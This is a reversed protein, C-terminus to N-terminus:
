ISSTKSISSGASTVRITVPSSVSPVGNSPMSVILTMSSPPSSYVIVTFKIQLNLASRDLGKEEQKQIQLQIKKTGETKKTAWGFFLSCRADLM